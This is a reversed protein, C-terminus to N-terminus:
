ALLAEPAEQARTIPAPEAAAASDLMACIADGTHGLHARWVARARDPDRTRFAVMIEEHEAVSQAWRAPDVIAMYRGRRARLTLKEHAAILVRNGCAGVIRDHIDSNVAFYPERDRNEYLDLMRAHLDEIEALEPATIRMVALEAAYSEIGAIVEFLDRAEGRTFSMIRAGRNQAIEVLGDSELLKLAERLPTRSVNIDACLAREIIRSGPALDGRIIMDRLTEAVQQAFPIRRSLRNETRRAVSGTQGAV